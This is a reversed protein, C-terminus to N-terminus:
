PGRERGTQSMQKKAEITALQLENQIKAILAEKFQVSRFGESGCYLDMWMKAEEEMSPIGFERGVFDLWAIGGLDRVPLNTIRKINGKTLETELTASTPLSRVGGGDGRM